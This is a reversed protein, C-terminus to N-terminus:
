LSGNNKLVVDGAFEGYWLWKGGSTNRCVSFPHNGKTCNYFNLLAQPKYVRALGTSLMMMMISIASFGKGIARKDWM